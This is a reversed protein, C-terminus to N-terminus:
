GVRMKGLAAKGIDLDCPADNDCQMRGSASILWALADIELARKEQWREDVAMDMEVFRVPACRSAGMDLSVAHALPDGGFADFAMMHRQRDLRAGGRQDLGQDSVACRAHTAMDVDVIINAEGIELGHQSHALSVPVPDVNLEHGERLASHGRFLARGLEHRFREAGARVQDAAEVGRTKVAVDFTLEVDDETEGLLEALSDVDMQVVAALGPCDSSRSMASRVIAAPMCPRTATLWANASPLM